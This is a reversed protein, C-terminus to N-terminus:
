ALQSTPTERTTTPSSVSSIAERRFSSIPTLSIPRRWTSRSTSTHRQQKSAMKMSCTSMKRATFFVPKSFEVATVTAESSFGSTDEIIVEEPLTYAEFAASALKHSRDYSITIM